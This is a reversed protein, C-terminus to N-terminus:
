CKSPMHDHGLTGDPRFYGIIRDMQSVAGHSAKERWQRTTSLKIEAGSM